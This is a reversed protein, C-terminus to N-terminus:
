DLLYPNIYARRLRSYLGIHHVLNPEVLFTQLQTRKPLDDLATDIAYKKHCKISILYQTVQVHTQRFYLVAPLCCSPAPYIAYFSPHLSRWTWSVNSHDLLILILTVLLFYFTFHFPKTNSSILQPLFFQNNYPLRSNCQWQVQNMNHNKKFLVVYFFYNYKTFADIQDRYNNQSVQCITQCLYFCAFLFLTLFLSTAILQTAIYFSPHFYSILWRPHYIKIFAPQQRRGNLPWQQKIRNDILSLLQYYFSESIPEADDQLLLLYNANPFSQFNALICQLHAQKEREYANMLSESRSNVIFVPLLRRILEIDESIEESTNNNECLTIVFRSHHNKLLYYLVQGIYFKGQRHDTDQVSYLISIIIHDNKNLSRQRPEYLLRYSSSLYNTTQLYDYFKSKHTQNSILNPFNQSNKLLDKIWEYAIQQEQKQQNILNNRVYEISSHQFLLGFPQRYSIFSAIVIM